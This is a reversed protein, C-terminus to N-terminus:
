YPGVEALWGQLVDVEASAAELAAIEAPTKQDASTSAGFQRASSVSDFTDVHRKRDESAAGLEQKARELERV